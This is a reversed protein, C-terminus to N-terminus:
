YAAEAAWDENARVRARASRANAADAGEGFGDDAQDLAAAQDAYERDLNARQAPPAAAAASSAARTAVVQSRLKERAEAVRGIKFLQNAEEIAARAASRNLRLEVMSDLPGLATLEKSVALSLSGHSAEQRASTHDRYRLALEGVELQGAATKPVSVRVLVTKQEGATFTGLPLVVRRGDRRHARDYVAAVEIGPAPEFAIEADAAVTRMLSTVEQDFIRPLSDANEVFYHSGNSEVALASMIKENYDVDVGITTISVGEAGLRAAITEFGHVDLVGATAEGDSLLLIRKVTGSQHPLATRAAELGCSICTAQAADIAALKRDITERVTASVSTAPVVVDALRGYTVVSVLDGDGLRAIAARAGAVANALRKGRMSGSTDIVIALALPVREHATRQPDARLDVYVYTDAAAGAPVVAHGLRGDVAVTGPLRLEHSPVGAVSAVVSSQPEATLAAVPAPRLSTAFWVLGGTALMGAVSLGAVLGIRM